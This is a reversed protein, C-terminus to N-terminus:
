KQWGKIIDPSFNSRSFEMRDVLKVANGTIHDIAVYGEPTTIRFGNTTKVFTPISSATNMKNIILSKAEVLLNVLDYTKILEEISHKDFWSMVAQKKALQSARGKETKKSDIEKQFRANIFGILGNVHTKTNTIPEGARVKSNNYTKLIMLFEPSKHIDNLAKSDIHNFLTGVAALLTTVKKTELATFTASGSYDKYTADEHWVSPIDKLHKSIPKGFSAQMSDFTNGTYTTHWVVGIRAKSIKQALESKAPVAYVITNPHFTVYSEGDIKEKKLTDHTFMLDGQYVGSKIGLKPFEELAIKLKYALDGSADADVDQPTKYVKPNKNFIGKKAVFYKGDTPDVGFFVAPAGDFKVTTAVKSPSNGALMNRLDRLFNIAQRTGTVGENFVLDEIHEMHTNKSETIYEKFTIM